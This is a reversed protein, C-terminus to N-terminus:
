HQHGSWMAGEAVAVRVGGASLSFNKVARSTVQPALLDIEAAEVPVVLSQVVQETRWSLFAQPDVDATLPLALVAPYLALRPGKTRGDSEPLLVLTAGEEHKKKSSM